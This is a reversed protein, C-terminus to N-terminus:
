AVGPGRTPLTVTFTSGRGPVSACEVAGRHAEAIWKVISLGLGFGGAARSRAEDTRYFRDFVRKVHDSPIGIGTDAIRLRIGSDTIELAATIRGGPPTYRIANDLLNLILRRMLHEDGCYQVDPSPLCDLRLDRADAMARASRCCEVL